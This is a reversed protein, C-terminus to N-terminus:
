TCRAPPGNPNATTRQNMPRGIQSMTVEITRSRRPPRSAEDAARYPCENPLSTELSIGACERVAVCVGVHSTGPNAADLEGRARDTVPDLVPEAAPLRANAIGARELRPAVRERTPRPRRGLEGRQAHGVHARELSCGLLAGDVTGGVTPERRATIHALSRALRIVDRESPQPRTHARELEDLERRRAHVLKDLLEDVGLELALRDSLRERHERHDDVVLRDLRVGDSRREYLQRAALSLVDDHRRGLVHERHM